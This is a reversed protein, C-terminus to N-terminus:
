KRDAEADEVADLAESKAFHLFSAFPTSAEAAGARRGGGQSETEPRLGVAEGGQLSAVLTDQPYVRAGLIESM